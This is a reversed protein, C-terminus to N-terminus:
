RGEAGPVDITEDGDRVEDAIIRQGVQRDRGAADVRDLVAQRTVSQDPRTKSRQGPAPPHGGIAREHNVDGIGKWLLVVDGDHPRELVDKRVMGAGAEHQGTHDVVGGVDTAAHMRFDFRSTQVVTDSTGAREAATFQGAKQGICVDAEQRGNGFAEADPRQFIGIEAQGDDQRVGARCPSQAVPVSVDDDGVRGGELGLLQVRCPDM